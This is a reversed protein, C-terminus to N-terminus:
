RGDIAIETPCSGGFFGKVFTRKGHKGTAASVRDIGGVDGFNGTWELYLYRGRVALGCGVSIESGSGIFKQEVGTGNAEARGVIPYQVPGANGWYIHGDGAAISQPNTNPRLAIFEDHNDTGNLNSRGIDDNLSDTWFLHSGDTALGPGLAPPYSANLANNTNIFNVSVQTGNLNARGITAYNRNTWFIDGGAIALGCPAGANKIFGKDVHTGNLKARGITHKSPQAWYIYKSDVAVGCVTTAGRAFPGKLAQGDLRARHLVSVRRPGGTFGAWYIYAGAAPALILLLALQVAGAALLHGIRARM